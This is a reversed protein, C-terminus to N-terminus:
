GAAKELYPRHEALMEQGMGFLDPYVFETVVDPLNTYEVVAGKGPKEGTQWAAMGIVAADCLDKLHKACVIENDRGKRNGIGM